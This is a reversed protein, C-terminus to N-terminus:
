HAAICSVKHDASLKMLATPDGGAQRHEIGYSEIWEKFEAASDTAKAGCIKGHTVITVRHEDQKLRLALAIYPQVDGRSGITLCVFHRPTLRTVSHFPQNAVFPMHSLAQDPFAKSQFVSERSPVLIDSPHPTNSPTGVGSDLTLPSVTRHVLDSPASMTTPSSTLLSESTLSHASIETIRKMVQKNTYYFKM